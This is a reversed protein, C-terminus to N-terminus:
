PPTGAPLKSLLVASPFSTVTHLYCPSPYHWSSNQCGLDNPHSDSVHNLEYWSTCIPIVPTCTLHKPGSLHRYSSIGPSKFYTCIRTFPNGGGGGGRWTIHLYVTSFITVSTMSTLSNTHSKFTSQPILSMILNTRRAFFETRTSGTIELM